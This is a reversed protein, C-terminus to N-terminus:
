AIMNPLAPMDPLGSLDSSAITRGAVLELATASVQSFGRTFERSPPAYPDGSREARRLTEGLEAVGIRRGTAALVALAELAAHRGRDFAARRNHSEVHDALRREALWLRPWALTESLVLSFGDDWGGTPALDGVRDHESKAAYAVGAVLHAAFLMFFVLAIM